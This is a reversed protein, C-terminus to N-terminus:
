KHWFQIVKEQKAFDTNLFHKHPVIGIRWLDLRDADWCTQVTIDGSKAGSDSHHECAFVLQNLQESSIALPNTSKNYLEKIFLSARRGHEPDHGENERKSDHFYSFLYVVEPDAKTYKALYRGIEEVREWHSLGHDSGIDLKFQKIILNLLEKRLDYERHNTINKPNEKNQRLQRLYNEADEKRIFRKGTDKGDPGIIGYSKDITIPAGTKASKLKKIQENERQKRTLPLLKRLKELNLQERAAKVLLRKLKKKITEDM